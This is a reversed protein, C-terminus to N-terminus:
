ASSDQVRRAKEELHSVRAWSPERVARVPEAWTRPVTSEVWAPIEDVPMPRALYYGQAADCGLRQLLDYVDQDEIGEAVCALGLDKGLGIVSRVIASDDGDQLMTRVFRQGIKIEGVPLRRLHSLSSFGTGFDDISVRVGLDSVGRLVQAAMTTNTLLVSETVEIVLNEGPVGHRELLEETLDRLRGDCLANPSVNVSVSLQLGAALWGALAELAADLVWATMPRDLGTQEALAVFAAPQLLGLRPHKWRVLTEVGVVANDNLRVQPQAYLVLEGRTIGSQLDVALALHEPTGTELEPTYYEVAQGTRHAFRMAIDARRLLDEPLVGAGGPETSVGVCARVLVQAQSLLFPRGLDTLLATTVSELGAPDGQDADFLIAFEDGGVRAVVDTPGSAAELRRGVEVLLEDGREHGLAANAAQLDRIGLWALGVRHDDGLREQATELLSRRNPLDTLTDHLADRRLQEILHATDLNAGTQHAVMDLLRADASGFPRMARARGTVSLVVERGLTLPAVAVVARRDDLEGGGTPETEELVHAQVISGEPGQRIRLLAPGHRPSRLYIEADRAMLLDASTDLATSLITDVDRGSALRQGLTHLSALNMHRETLLSYGRMLLVLVTLSLLLPAIAATGAQLALGVVFSATAGSLSLTVAWVVHSLFDRLPPLRTLALSIVSAGALASTLGSATVAVCVAIWGFASLPESPNLAGYVTLAIGIGLARSAGNFVQKLASKRRRVLDILVPTGVGALLLDLPTAFLLGLALAIETVTLHIANDLNKGFPLYLVVLEFVAWCGVLVLLPIRPEAASASESGLLPLDVRVAAALMLVILAPPGFRRVRSTLRAGPTARHVAM